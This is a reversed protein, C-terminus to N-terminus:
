STNPELVGLPLGGLPHCVPRKTEPIPELQRIKQIQQGLRVARNSFDDKMLCEKGIRLQHDSTLTFIQDSTAACIDVRLPKGSASDLCLGTADNRIEGFYNADDVPLIMEPIINKLYWTFNHCGLKRRLELRDSVDGYDVMHLKTQTAYFFKKYHDMWVEAVRMANRYITPDSGNPFSYPIYRRYVHGIRSCPIIEIKGGCMWIRFSMEINEGGWVDMGTDYAGMKEFYTKNISFLGGAMTPTRHFLTVQRINDYESVRRNQEYEPIRVWQHQLQWTFGGSNSESAGIYAFSRDDIIDIIPQVRTKRDDGIRSVLPELWGETCECHSDLYTLVDGKAVSGGRLRSRILGSRVEMREVHVPVPLKAVYDDLPKKLHEQTSCDDVLIVEMLLERPSRNIISHTTRLLTSWAENHFVVIVSTTPLKGPYKKDNCGRPRVDPLSRNLAIKDSAMLNFENIKWKEDREKKFEPEIIVPKGQEGPGDRNVPKPMDQIKYTEMQM